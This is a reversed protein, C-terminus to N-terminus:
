AMAPAALADAASDGAGAALIRLEGDETDVLVTSGDIVEGAIIKEALPDQLRTQIVRQLPRAGYLPNYGAEALLTRADDEVRLVIERDLLLRALRGLQIDVIPKMVDLTLQRFILIDDLRNLFEPRFRGRVVEMIEGVM